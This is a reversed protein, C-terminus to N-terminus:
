AINKHNRSRNRNAITHFDCLTFSSIAYAHRRNRIRLSFNQVPELKECRNPFATALFDNLTFSVFLNAAITRSKVKRKEDKFQFFDCKRAFLFRALTFSVESESQSQSHSDSDCDCFFQMTYILSLPAAVELATLFQLFFENCILMRSGKVFWPFTFFIMIEIIKPIALSSIVRILRLQAKTLPTCNGDREEWRKIYSNIASSVWQQSFLVGKWHYLSWM